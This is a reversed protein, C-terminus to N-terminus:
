FALCRIVHSELKNRNLNLWPMLMLLMPEYIGGRIGKEELPTFSWSGALMMLRSEELCTYIPSHESVERVDEDVLSAMEQLM